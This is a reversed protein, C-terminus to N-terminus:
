NSVNIPINRLSIAYLIVLIGGADLAPEGIFEFRFMKRMDAVEISQIADM